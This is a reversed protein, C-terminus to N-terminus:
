TLTRINVYSVHDRVYVLNMHGCTVLIQCLSPVRTELCDAYPEFEREAQEWTKEAEKVATEIENSTVKSVALTEILVEDDLIDGKSNSLM